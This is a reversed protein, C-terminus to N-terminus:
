PRIAVHYQGRGISQGTDPHSVVFSVFHEGPKLDPLPMALAVERSEGPSLKLAAGSREAVQQGQADTVVLLPVFPPSQTDGSHSFWASVSLDSGSTSRLQMGSVSLGKYQALRQGQHLSRKDEAYVAWNVSDPQAVWSPEAQARQSKAKFQALSQRLQTAVTPEDVGDTLLGDQLYLLRDRHLVYEGSVYDVWETKTQKLAV